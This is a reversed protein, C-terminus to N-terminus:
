NAPGGRGSDIRQSVKRLGEIIAAEGVAGLKPGEDRLLKLSSSHVDLGPWDWEGAGLCRDVLDCLSYVAQTFGESKVAWSDELLSTCLIYVSENDPEGLDRGDIKGRVQDLLVDLKALTVDRAEDLVKEANDLAEKVRIGGGAFAVRALKSKVRFKRVLSM